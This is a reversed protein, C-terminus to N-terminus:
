YLDYNLGVENLVSCFELNGRLYKTSPYEMFQASMMILRLLAFDTFNILALYHSRRDDLVFGATDNLQESIMRVMNYFMRTFGYIQDAPDIAELYGVVVEEEFSARLREVEAEIKIVAEVGFVQVVDCGFVENVKFLEFSVRQSGIMHFLQAEFSRLKETKRTARVENKLEFNAENQLTLSKVIFIFSMFSLIPGILGGIFDGLQAWAEPNDSIVYDLRVYFNM